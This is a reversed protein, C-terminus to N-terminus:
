RVRLRLSVVGREGPQVPRATIWRVHTIDIAQAPHLKGQPGRVRRSRLAGYTKGGDVSVQLHARIRQASSSLYTVTDPVPNTIIVQQAESGQNAYAVRYVLEQGPLVDGADVLRTRIRGQELVKQERLVRRDLEIAGEAPAAPAAHSPVLFLALAVSAALRWINPM